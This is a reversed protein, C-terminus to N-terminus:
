CGEEFMCGSMRKERERTHYELGGTVELINKGMGGENKGGIGSGLHQTLWVCRMRQEEGGSRHVLKVRVLQQSFEQGAPSLFKIAM